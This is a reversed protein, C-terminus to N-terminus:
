WVLMNVVAIEFGLDIGTPHVAVAFSISFPLYTLIFYFKNCEM